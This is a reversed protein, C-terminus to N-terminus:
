QLRAPSRLPLVLSYQTIIPLYTGEYTNQPMTKYNLNRPANTESDKTGVLFFGFSFNHHASGVFWIQGHNIPWRAPVGIVM